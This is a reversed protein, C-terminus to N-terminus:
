KNNNHCKVDLIIKGFKGERYEKILIKSARDLDIKYKKNIFGRKRGFEELIKLSDTSTINYQELLKNKNNTHMEKLLYLALETNDIIENKIMDLIALKKATDQNELNHWLIGPMDFINIEENVKVIQINKTHGPKNAVSTSKKGVLLNIISSKGVNPVGIVLVKIKEKYNKIKKVNAIKKINYIIQNRIRKKYINTIIVNNGLIEFHGKWKLIEREQVLDSKNLLIIKDKKSNKIIKEILPNKSSIPARADLIELVINTKKLNAQILDLARKMHGPFWNIKNSM